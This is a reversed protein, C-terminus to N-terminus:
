IRSKKGARHEDIIQQFIQVPLRIPTGVFVAGVGREVDGLIAKVIKTSEWKVKAKHGFGVRHQATRVFM